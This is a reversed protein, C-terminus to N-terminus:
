TQTGVITGDTDTTPAAAHVRLDGTTDGWM